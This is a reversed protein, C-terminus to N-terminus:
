IEEGNKRLAILELTKGIADGRGTDKFGELGKEYQEHYREPVLIHHLDKGMMENSTYGFVEEAANNWYSVHGDNDILIIANKSATAIANIVVGQERVSEKLDSRLYDEGWRMCKKSQYKAGYNDDWLTDSGKM